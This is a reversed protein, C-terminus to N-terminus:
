AGPDPKRGAGREQAFRIAAPLGQSVGVGEGIASNRCLHELLLGNPTGAAAPAPPSEPTVPFAPLFNTDVGSIELLQVTGAKCDFQQRVWAAAIWRDRVQVPVIEAQLVWVEVRSGTRVTAKPAFFVIRKETDAVFQLASDQAPTAAVAGSVASAAIVASLAAARIWM